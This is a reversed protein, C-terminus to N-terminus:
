LDFEKALLHYEYVQENRYEELWEDIWNRKKSDAYSTFREGNYAPSVAISKSIKSYNEDSVFEWVLNPRKLKIRKFLILYRLFLFDLLHLM